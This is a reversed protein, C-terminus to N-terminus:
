GTRCVTFASAQFNSPLDPASAGTTLPEGGCNAAPYLNMMEGGTPSYAIVASGWVLPADQSCCALTAIMRDGEVNPPATDKDSAVAVPLNTNWVSHVVNGCVALPNAKSSSNM